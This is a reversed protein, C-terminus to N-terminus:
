VQAKIKCNWNEFGAWRGTKGTGKKKRHKRSGVRPAGCPFQQM